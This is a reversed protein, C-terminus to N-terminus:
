AFQVISNLFIINKTTMNCRDYIAVIEWINSNKHVKIVFNEFHAVKEIDVAFYAFHINLEWM